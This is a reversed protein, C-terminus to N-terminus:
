YKFRSPVTDAANNRGGCVIGTDDLACVYWYDFDIDIPNVLEQIEFPGIVAPRTSWTSLGREDYSFIGPYGYRLATHPM